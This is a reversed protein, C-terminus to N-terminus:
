FKRGGEHALCLAQPGSRALWERARRAAVSDFRGSYSHVLEILDHIETETLQYAGHHTLYHLAANQAPFFALPRREKRPGRKNRGLVDSSNKMDHFRVSWWLTVAIEVAAITTLSCNCQVLITLSNADGLSCSSCM